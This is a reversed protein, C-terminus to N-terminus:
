QDNKQNCRDAVKRFEDIAETAKALTTALSKRTEDELASLREALRKERAMSEARETDRDRRSQYIFWLLMLGILGSSVAAKLLDGELSGSPAADAGTSAAIAASAILWNLRHM